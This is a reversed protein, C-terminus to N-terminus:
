GARLRINYWQDIGAPLYTPFLSPFFSPDEIRLLVLSRVTINKTEETDTPKGQSLSTLFDMFDNLDTLQIDYETESSARWSQAM